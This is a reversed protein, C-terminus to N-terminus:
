RQVWVHIFEKGEFDSFGVRLYNRGSLMNKYVMKSIPGGKFGIAYASRDMFLTFEEETDIALNKDFGAQNMTQRIEIKGPFNGLAYNYVNWYIGWDDAVIYLSEPNKHNEIIWRIAAYKPEVPGSRTQLHKIKGTIPPEFYFM